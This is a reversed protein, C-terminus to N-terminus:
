ALESFLAFLSTRSQNPDLRFGCPFAVPSAFVAVAVRLMQHRKGSPSVLFELKEQLLVQFEIHVRFSVCKSHRQSLLHFSVARAGSLM